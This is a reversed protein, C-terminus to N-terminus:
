CMIDLMRKTIPVDVVQYNVIHGDHLLIKCIANSM